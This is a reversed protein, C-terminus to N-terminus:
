SAAAAAAATADQLVLDSTTTYINVIHSSQRGWVCSSSVLVQSSEVTFLALNTSCTGACMCVCVCLCETYVYEADPEWYVRSNM